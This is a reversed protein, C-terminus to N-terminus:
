REIPVYEPGPNKLVRRSNKLEELANFINEQRVPAFEVSDALYPEGGVEIRFKKGQEIYGLNLNHNGLISYAEGASGVKDLLYMRVFGGKIVDKPDKVRATKNLLPLEDPGKELNDAARIVDDMVASTTPNTGAGRGTYMQRGALRWVVEVANFVGSVAALEGSVLAPGVSLELEGIRPENAIALLKLDQQRGEEESYKRAFAFDAPRVNTIGRRPILNPHIWIGKALALLITLKYAADLGEVDDTPDTEAYGDRIARSLISHYDIGSKRGIAVGRAMATLIFNTTGNVIGKIRKVRDVKTRERLTNVISIGGGVAGEFQIDVGRSRAAEFLEPAYLAIPAKAPTVVSIRRNIAELMFDRSDEPSVGGPTEVLIKTRPDNLLEYRDTTYRPKEARAKDPDKIIVGVFDLGYDRGHARLEGIVGKGVNGAGRVVVGPRPRSEIRETM